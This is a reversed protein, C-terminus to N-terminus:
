TGCRARVDAAVNRLAIFADYPSDYPRFYAHVDGEPGGKVSMYYFHDSTTLRRWDALLKQGEEDSEDAARAKVPGELAFVVAAADQQMANGQWASLDRERDAWSTYRPVAYTPTDPGGFRALAETPTLFAAAPDIEFFAGPLDWLFQFIGTDAWQHEGFTEYDMFLNVTHGPEHALWSAFKAPTLPWQGWQRDGFRFAIDDSLRHNKLLLGPRDTRGPITMPPAYVVGPTRGALLDTVGECLIGKFRPRGTDDTMAFVHAAVEDAYILETNRFVRPTQGFVQEMTRTHLALQAEFEARSHIFALSHHYTESLLECAGMRALERVHGIVDPAHAELQEIATGTISFAVKFRGEFRRALDILLRTAPRYCKDAVKRLIEANKADDFYPPGSDFPSYRRLRHPQHLQFYLVPCPM